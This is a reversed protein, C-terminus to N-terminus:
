RCNWSRGSMTPCSPAAGAESRIWTRSKPVSMDYSFNFADFWDQRRALLGARFGRAGYHSAYENIKRALRQFEVPNDYLFGDHNLDQVNVEHGRSRISELYAEPVAYRQEPVVQFSAKVGHEDDLDMLTSCFDRGAATEVDHTM